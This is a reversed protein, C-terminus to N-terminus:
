EEKGRDASHPNVAVEKSSAEGSVSTGYKEYGGKWDESYHHGEYLPNSHEPTCGTHMPRDTPIEDEFRDRSVAIPEPTASDNAFQRGPM